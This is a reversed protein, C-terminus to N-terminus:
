ATEPCEAPPDTGSRIFGFLQKLNFATALWLWEQKVRELGRTLFQRAGFQQKIVAFPREGPHRRQAYKTQAEETRMLERQKALHPENQEHRVDRRRRKNSLCLERLPCKDCDAAESRYTRRIRERGESTERSEGAFSLRKGEPCRYCDNEEDYVFAYKNLKQTEQGKSKVTTTPLRERDAEAVPVTPDDRLAPNDAPGDPIPSYLVINREACAALNEGTGNLGDTLMEPPPEDLDFNAQVDEIAAMLHKDEDTHPIV